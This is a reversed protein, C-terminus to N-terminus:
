HFSSIRSKLTGNKPPEQYDSIPIVEKGEDEEALSAPTNVPVVEYEDFLEDAFAIADTETPFPTKNDALYVSFGGEFASGTIIAFM